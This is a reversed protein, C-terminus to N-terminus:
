GRRSVWATGWWTAAGWGRKFFEVKGLRGVDTACLEVMPEGLSVIDPKM